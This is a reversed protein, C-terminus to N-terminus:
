DQTDKVGSLRLGVHQVNLHATLASKQTHQLQMRSNRRIDKRETKNGVFRVSVLDLLNKEEDERM